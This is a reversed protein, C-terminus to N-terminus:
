RIGMMRWCLEISMGMEKRIYRHRNYDKPLLVFDRVHHNDPTKTTTIQVEVHNNVDWGHTDTFTTAPVGLEDFFESLSAACFNVLARNIINEARMIAEYSSNFHRGTLMDYCLVEGGLVIV